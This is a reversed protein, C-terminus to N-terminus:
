TRNHGTFPYKPWVAIYGAEGQPASSQWTPYQLCETLEILSYVHTPHGDLLLTAGWNANVHKSRAWDAIVWLSLVSSSPLLPWLTRLRSVVQSAQKMFMPHRMQDDTTHRILNRDWWFGAMDPHQCAYHNGTLTCVFDGLVPEGCRSCCRAM